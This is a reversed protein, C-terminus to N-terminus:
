RWGRVVVRPAVSATAPLSRVDRPDYSMHQFWRVAGSASMVGAGLLSNNYGTFCLSGDDALELHRVVSYKDADGFVTQSMLRANANPKIDNTRETEKPATPNDKSCGALVACVVAAYSLRVGAHIWRSRM